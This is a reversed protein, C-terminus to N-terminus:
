YLYAAEISCTTISSRGQAYNKQQLLLLGLLVQTDIDEPHAKLQNFAFNIAENIRGAKRLQQIHTLPTETTAPAPNSIADTIKPQLDNTSTPSRHDNAVLSIAQTLRKPSHKLSATVKIAKALHKACSPKRSPQNKQALLIRSARIVEKGMFPGLVVRYRSLTHSSEVVRVPLSTQKAILEKYHIANARNNFAGAQLLYRTTSSKAYKLHSGHEFGYITISQESTAWAETLTFNISCLLVLSWNRLKLEM